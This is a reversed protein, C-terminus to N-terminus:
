EKENTVLRILKEIQDFHRGTKECFLKSIYNMDREYPNFVDITDDDINVVVGIMNTNRCKIEDGLCIKNQDEQFLEIPVRKEKFTCFSGSSIEDSIRVTIMNSNSVMEDPLDILYKGM